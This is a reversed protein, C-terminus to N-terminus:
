ELQHKGNNEKADRFLNWFLVNFYPMVVQEGAIEFEHYTIIEESDMM